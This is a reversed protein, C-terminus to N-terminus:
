GTNPPEVLYPAIRAANKQRECTAPLGCLPGSRGGGGSANADGLGARLPPREPGRDKGRHGSEFPWARYFIGFKNVSETVIEAKNPVPDKPIIRDRQIM